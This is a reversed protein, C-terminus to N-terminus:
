RAELFRVNQQTFGDLDKSANIPELYVKSTELSVIRLVTWPQAGASLIALQGANLGHRRGLDVLYRGREYRLAGQLPECSLVEVNDRVFMNINETLKNLVSGRDPRAGDAPTESWLVLAANTTTAGVALIVIAIAAHRLYNANKM